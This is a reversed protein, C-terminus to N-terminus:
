RGDSDTDHQLERILRVFGAVIGIVLFVIALFHTHFLHDLGYGIGYGVATSIPLLMALGLYQGIKSMNDDAM